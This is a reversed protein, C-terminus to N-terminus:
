CLLYCFTFVMLLVVLCPVMFFFFFFFFFFFPFNVIYFDLGDRKDFIKSSIFGTNFCIYAYIGSTNRRFNIIFAIVKIKIYYVKRKQIIVYRATIRITYVNSYQGVFSVRCKSQPSFILLVLACHFNPKYWM